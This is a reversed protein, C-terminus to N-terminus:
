RLIRQASMRHAYVFLVIAIGLLLVNAITTGLRLEGPIPSVVYEYAIIVLVGALSVGFAAVANRSRALLLLSGDLCGWVGFAWGAAAWAPFTASYAKQADSLQALYAANHTQRMLYDFTGFAGWLMSLAGIMWLHMPTKMAAGM